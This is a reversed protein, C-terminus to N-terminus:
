AAAYIIMNTMATPQVNQTTGTLGSSVTTTVTTAVTLGTVSYSETSGTNQCVQKNPGALVSAGANNVAVSGGSVVSSASSSASLTDQQALQGGGAAGLTVGSIGSVGSTMRNAPTGGMNDVGAMVRGRLDPLNFTTTGDGAGWTTGLLAFLAAYTTRSVAQGYCLYWQSPISAAPGAFQRVEGIIGATNAVTGGAAPGFPDISWIQSGTPNDPTAATFLQIKYAQSPDLWISGFRGNADAVVPQAIPTALGPDSYVALPTTTGSEYFLLQGGALPTGNTSIEFPNATYYAVGSAAM